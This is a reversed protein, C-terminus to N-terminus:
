LRLRSVQRAPNGIARSGDPIAETVCSGIGVICENGIRVGDAVQSGAGLFACEGIEVKGCICAGPALFSCRGVVSDHSVIVSNNLLVGDELRVRADVNCMPYVMVGLGLTARRNVFATPHVYSLLKRGSAHLEELLQRKVTLHKYGLCVLFELDQFGRELYARFPLCGTDRAQDDFRVFRDLELGGDVLFSELQRGLDGYGILGVRM